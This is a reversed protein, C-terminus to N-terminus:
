PKEKCDCSQSVLYEMGRVVTEVAKVGTGRCKPCDPNKVLKNRRDTVHERKEPVDVKLTRAAMRVWEEPDDDWRGQNFWTSPNPAGKALSHRRLAESYLRTRVLLAEFTAKGLAGRIAKLADPKCVKRPYEGYIEEVQGPPVPKGGM